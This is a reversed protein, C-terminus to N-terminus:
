KLIHSFYDKIVIEGKIGEYEGLYIGDPLNKSTEIEISVPNTSGKLNILYIQLGYGLNNSTILNKVKINELYDSPFNPEIDIGSQPATGNTNHIKPNTIELNRASIISIGQRRNNNLTANIIKIKNSYEKNETSGIYIGDGWCDSINANKIVVDESGMISIGFGWEGTSGIHSSREGIIRVDGTLTVNEVDRIKVIEYSELESPIAQLIAGKKFDLTINDKLVVSKSADILYIGKPFEVVGGGRNSQFDIARQIAITDEQQDDGLAGFTLITVRSDKITWFYFLFLFLFCMLIIIKIHFFNKNVSKRM